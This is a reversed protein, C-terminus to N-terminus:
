SIFGPILDKSVYRIDNNFIDQGSRAIDRLVDLRLEIFGVLLRSDQEADVEDRVQRYSPPGTPALCIFSLKDFADRFVVVFVPKVLLQARGQAFVVKLLQRPSTVRLSEDYSGTNYRHIAHPTAGHGQASHRVLADQKM